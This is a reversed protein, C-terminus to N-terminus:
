QVAAVEISESVARLLAEESVPKKLLKVKPWRTVERNVVDPVGTLVVFPTQDGSLRVLNIVDEGRLRPMALDTIVAQVANRNLIGLLMAGDAAEVVDFSHERLIEAVSSRFGPDDDAVAVVLKIV